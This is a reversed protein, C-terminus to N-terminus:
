ESSARCHEAWSATRIPNRTAEAMMNTLTAAAKTMLAATDLADFPRLAFDDLVLLDVRLLKRIKADHSNDLRSARLRKLLVDARCFVVSYRRRVATHGMATALFTKGVGVPIAVSQLM